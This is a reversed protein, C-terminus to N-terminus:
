FLLACFRQDSKSGTSSTTDFIASIPSTSPGTEKRCYDMLSGRIPQIEIRTKEDDLPVPAIFRCRNVSNLWLHDGSVIGSLEEIPCDGSVRIVLVNTLEQSKDVHM